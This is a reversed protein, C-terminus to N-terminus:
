LDSEEIEAVSQDFWSHFQTMEENVIVAPIIYRNLNAKIWKKARKIRSCYYPGRKFIVGDKLMVRLMEDGDINPISYGRREPMTTLYMLHQFLQIKMLSYYTSGRRTILMGPLPNMRIEVVSYDVWPVPIVAESVDNICYSQLQGNPHMVRVVDPIKKGHSYGFHRDLAHIVGCCGYDGLIVFMGAQINM